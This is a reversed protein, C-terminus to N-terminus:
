SPSSHPCTIMSKERAEVEIQHLTQLGVDLCEVTIKNSPFLQISRCLPCSVNSLLWTDICVTHFLHGCYPIVKVSEKEEFESLCVSCDISEQEEVEKWAFIPLSQIILIDLGHSNSASSSSSSPSTQRQDRHQQRQRRRRSIQIAEPSSFRYIYVSFLFLFFFTSLLFLVILILYTDRTSLSIFPEKEKNNSSHLLDQLPFPSPSIAIAVNKNLLKRNINTIAM